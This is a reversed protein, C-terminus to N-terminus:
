GRTANAVAITTPTERAQLARGRQPVCCYAVHPWNSTRYLSRPLTVAVSTLDNTHLHKCFGDPFSGSNFHVSQSNQYAVDVNRISRSELGDWVPSDSQVTRTNMNIARPDALHRVSSM